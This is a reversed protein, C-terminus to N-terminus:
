AAKGLERRLQEQARSWMNGDVEPIRSIKEAQEEIASQTYLNENSAHKSKFIGGLKDTLFSMVKSFLTDKKRAEISEQAAALSAAFADQHGPVDADPLNSTSSNNTSDDKEHADEM